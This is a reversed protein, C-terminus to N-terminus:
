GFWGNEVCELEAGVKLEAKVLCLVPSAQLDTTQEVNWEWVAKIRVKM